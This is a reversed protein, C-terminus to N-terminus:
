QFTPEGLLHFGGERTRHGHPKHAPDIWDHVFGSDVVDDRQQLNPLDLHLVVLSREPDTPNPFITERAAPTQLSRMSQLRGTRFTKFASPDGVFTLRALLSGPNQEPGPGLSFHASQSRTFIVFFADTSAPLPQTLEARAVQFESRGYQGELARLWRASQGDVDIRGDAGGWGFRKLQFQQIAGITKPGIKGDVTLLPTAGGEFTPILNLLEQVQVVDLSRNAGGQGVSASITRREARLLGPSGANLVTM